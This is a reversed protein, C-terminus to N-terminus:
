FPLQPSSPVHLLALRRSPRDAHTPHIALKFGLSHLRRRSRLPYRLLVTGRLQGACVLNTFCTQIEPIHFWVKGFDAIRAVSDVAEFHTGNFTGPFYEAISGGLPAGPNISIQLVWATENTGKVPMEVLNPCEYQLGLLGHYSFNSTPSWEKLDPSTFFGIAFEQAYAIVM